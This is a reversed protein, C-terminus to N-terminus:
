LTSAAIKKLQLARLLNLEIHCALRRDDQSNGGFSLSAFSDCHKDAYQGFAAAEDVAAALARAKDQAREDTKTIRAALEREAASVASKSKESETALCERQGVHASGKACARLVEFRDQASTPPSLFLALVSLASSLHRRRYAM